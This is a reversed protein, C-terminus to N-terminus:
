TTLVRIPKKTAEFQLSVRVGDAQSIDLVGDIQRSLGRIITLGLSRSHQVDFSPPLGVGDDAITLQYRQPGVAVLEVTLTGRRPPPFAHKLANTVVENIILGVPTALVVDLEVADLTFLPRVTDQCDFSHLLNDVIEQGYEAMNVRALSDAQYLKQHLLAMAQVRNQSERIATVAQPDRLYDSQTALLSSIIQLNNKVRHHIEKLMWEKEALLESKEGLVHALSKNQQNIETQKAELLQNSRQKLRYRNYGLGLLLVLMVAGVLTANRQVERQRIRAQQVQNQKTLLTINQEKKRTDYQIELSALQKNKTENFVSDNLLKYRQYHAIATPFRGQASDAKFLLLHIDARRLVPGSHQNLALVQQLYDRAQDYRKTRLYFKALTLGLTNKEGNDAAGSKWFAVMQKAYHEAVVYHGLTTHLETMYDAIRVLVRPSGTLYPKTAQTFFALGEPARHQAVMVRVIAGAMAVANVDNGNHEFNKLAKQYYALSNPYQKLERYAVALRVYLGGLIFTDRTAQASEVAALGYRLAEKYDSMQRYTAHLLDYTYHMRRHGASRYLAEVELLERVAQESHGQQLHVDAVCKLMYAEDEKNGLQRFLVQARQYCYLQTALEQPSSGCGQGLYLWGLAELRPMHEQQSQAIGRRILSPGLTDQKMYEHVQGLMLLSGAHGAAFHLRDSLAAAQQAYTLAPQLDTGLDDNQLLLDDTIRLLLQVRNTDPRSRHLQALLSDFAAKSLRPYIAEASCSMSTALFWFLFLTGLARRSLM